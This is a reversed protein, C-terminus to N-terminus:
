RVPRFDFCTRLGTLTRGNSKLAENLFDDQVCERVYECGGMRDCECVESHIM